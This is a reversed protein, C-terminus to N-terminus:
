RSTSHAARRRTSSLDAGARRWHREVPVVATCGSPVPAGTMIRVATGPELSTISAAGAAIDGLVPLTLPADESAGELDSAVVAYGDMGSNDFGPLPASADIDEALVLGLADAIPVDVPAASKIADLIRALHEEVSILVDPQPMSM